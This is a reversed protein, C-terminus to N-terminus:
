QYESIKSWLAHLRLRQDSIANKSFDCIKRIRTIARYGIEGFEASKLWHWSFHIVHFNTRTFVQRKQFQGTRCGKLFFKIDRSHTKPLNLLDRTCIEFEWRAYQGYFVVLGPIQDTSFSTMVRRIPGGGHDDIFSVM